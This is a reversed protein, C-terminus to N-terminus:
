SICNSKKGNIVYKLNHLYSPQKGPFMDSVKVNHLKKELEYAAESSKLYIHGEGYKRKSFYFAEEIVADNFFPDISHMFNQLFQKFDFVVHTQCGGFHKEM